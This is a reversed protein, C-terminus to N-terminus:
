PSFRRYLPCGSMVARQPRSDIETDFTLREPSWDEGYRFGGDPMETLPYRESYGGDWGLVLGGDRAAVRICTQWPNHSRYVGCLAALRADVSGDDALPEGREPAFPRPDDGQAIALAAEALATSGDLGNVAAVVAVGSAPEVWLRTHMGLVGGSHGFRAPTLALAYGYDQDDEHDHSYSTTMLEFSSPELVGEGRRLLMRAYAAFDELSMSICGDAEASEIWAAPALGDEKRWPRDDYFADHGPVMDARIDNTIAAYSSRLGLPEFIREAVLDPYPKGAIHSVAVGLTRYGVNSYWFGAELPGNPLDALAIVDYNSASGIEPGQVLGATHTLLHHPTIPGHDTRVRFWPLVDTIPAHLDIRGEAALQLVVIATFSKGISGLNWLGDPAADGYTRAYLLGDRDTLAVAAAPTVGTDLLSAAFDDLAGPTNV